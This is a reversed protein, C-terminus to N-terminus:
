IDRLAAIASDLGERINSKTLEEALLEHPDVFRLVHGRETEVVLVNGHGVIDPARGDDLLQLTTTRFANFEKRFEPETLAQRLRYRNRSDLLDFSNAGFYTQLVAVAPQRTRPSQAVIYMTEPVIEPYGADTYAKKLREYQARYAKALGVYYDAPQPTKPYGVKYVLNPFGPQKAELRFMLSWYGRAEPGIIEYKAPDIPTKEHDYSGGFANRVLSRSGPVLHGAMSALALARQSLSLDQDLAELSAQLTDTKEFFEEVGVREREIRDRITNRREIRDIM